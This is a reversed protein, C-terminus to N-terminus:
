TDPALNLHRSDPTLHCFSAQAAQRGPLFAALAAEPVLVGESRMEIWPGM